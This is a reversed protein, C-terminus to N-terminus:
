LYAQSYSSISLSVNMHVKTKLFIKDHTYGLVKHSVYSTSILVEM